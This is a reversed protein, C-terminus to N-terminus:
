PLKFKRKIRQTLGAGEKILSDAQWYHLDTEAEKMVKTVEKVQLEEEQFEKDQWTKLYLVFESFAQLGSLALGHIGEKYGEGYFYRSLFENMPKKILDQWSFKYGDKVILQSHESTYINMRDLYQSISNYHYHIIAFGEEKPLEKGKGQTEPVSHIVDSWRVTDRKFFRINYDPWWRSNKIWKDFIINKRPILVYDAENNNIVEKLGTKLTEPIEEDADLILVWDGTAKSIAYNRAPEVYNTKKHTFVKAGLKKAIEVTKDDSFMDCVIVEDAFNKVSTIARFINKEENLTNIVVSVRKM